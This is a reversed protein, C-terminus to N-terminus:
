SIFTLKRDEIYKRSLEAYVFLEWRSPYLSIGKERYFDEVAAFVETDNVFTYVDLYEYLEELKFTKKKM